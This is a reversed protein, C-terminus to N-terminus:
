ADTVPEKLYLDYYYIYALTFVSLSFAFAFLTLLYVPILVIIHLGYYVTTLWFIALMLYGPFLIMLSAVALRITLWFRGRTLAFSRRTAEVFNVNQDIVIPVIVITRIFIWLAFIIGLMIRVQYVLGLDFFDPVLRLFLLYLLYLSTNYLLISWYWRYGRFIQNVTITVGRMYSIYHYLFGGVLYSGTPIVMLMLIIEQYFRRLTLELTLLAAFYNTIITLSLFLVNSRFFKLANVRSDELAKKIQASYSM